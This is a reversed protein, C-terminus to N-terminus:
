IQQNMKKQSIVSGEQIIHFPPGTQMEKETGARTSLTLKIM